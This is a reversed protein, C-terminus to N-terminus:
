LLNWLLQKFYTVANNQIGDRDRSSSTENSRGIKRGLHEGNGWNLRLFLQTNGTLSFNKKIENGLFKLRDTAM